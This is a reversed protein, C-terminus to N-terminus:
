PLDPNSMVRGPHTKCFPKRQTVKRQQFYAFLPLCLQAATDEAWSLIDGSKLACFIQDWSHWGKHSSSGDMILHVYQQLLDKLLFIKCYSALSVSADNAVNPIVAFFQELLCQSKRYCMSAMSLGIPTRWAGLFCYLAPPNWFWATHWSSHEFKRQVVVQRPLAAFDVWFHLRPWHLLGSLHTGSQVAVHQRTLKQGKCRRVYKRFGWVPRRGLHEWNRM